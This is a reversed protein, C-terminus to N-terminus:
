ISADKRLDLIADRLATYDDSCNHIQASVRVWLRGHWFSVPVEIHYQDRLWLHLQVAEAPEAAFDRLAPLPIAAMCALGEEVGLTVETDCAGRLIAAGAQLLDANHRRLRAFGIHSLVALAAPVALWGSWDCTGPWMFEALFGQGQGHSTVPPRMSHQESPHVWLFATGKPTCLWKHLNATYFSAGIAPVDLELAGVAHAGDILVKAGAARCMRTIDAVPLRVPPFSVVHDLVALKVRSGHAELAAKFAALMGKRGQQVVQLPLEVVLVQAGAAAARRAVLNKVANYTISTILIMDGPQLQVSAAVAQVASTANVVPAVDAADARILEAVEERAVQMRDFLESEMFRCPQQEMRQAHWQQVEGTLRLCAGYSGHNLFHVGDELMFLQKRAESGLATPGTDIQRELYGQILPCPLPQATEPLGEMAHRSARELWSRLAFSPERSM